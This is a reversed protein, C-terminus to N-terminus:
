PFFEKTAEEITDYRDPLFYSEWIWVEMKRFSGSALRCKLVDVVVKTAEISLMKGATDKGHNLACGGPIPQILMEEGDGDFSM